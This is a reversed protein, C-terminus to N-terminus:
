WEQLLDSRVVKELLKHYWTEFVVRSHGVGDLVETLVLVLHCGVSM